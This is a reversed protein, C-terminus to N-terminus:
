FVHFEEISFSICIASVCVSDGWSGSSSDRNLLNNKLTTTVNRQVRRPKINTIRPYKKASKRSISTVSNLLSVEAYKKTEMTSQITKPNHVGNVNKLLNTSANLPTDNALTRTKRRTDATNTSRYQSKIVNTIDILIDTKPVSYASTYNKFKHSMFYIMFTREM